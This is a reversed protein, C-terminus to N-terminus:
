PHTVGDILKRYREPTEAMAHSMQEELCAKRFDPEMVARLLRNELREAESVPFVNSPATYAKNHVTESFGLILMNHIFAKNVADFIEVNYNIDLYFDCEEFLAKVREERISPVTVINPRTGLAMLKRSMETQAGVIFTIGPLAAALESLHEVRDTNTLILAKPTGKNEREMHYIFGLPDIKNKQAGISILRKYSDEFQVFIHRTRQATGNLIGRM